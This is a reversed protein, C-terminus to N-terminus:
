CQKQTLIVGSAFLVERCQLLKLNRKKDVTGAGRGQMPQRMASNLTLVCLAWKHLQQQELCKALM